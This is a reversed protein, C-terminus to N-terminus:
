LARAYRVYECKESRHHGGECILLYEGQPEVNWRTVHQGRLTTLEARLRDIEEVLATALEPRLSIPNRGGYHCM